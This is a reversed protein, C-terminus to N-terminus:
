ALNHPFSNIKKRHLTMLHALIYVNEIFTPTKNNVNIKVDKSLSVYNM